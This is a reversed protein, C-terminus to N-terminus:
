SKDGNNKINELKRELAKIFEILPYDLAKCILRLEILDLRRERNEIKSIITQDVGIKEALEKQKVGKEERIERLMSIIIRYSRDHISKGKNVM